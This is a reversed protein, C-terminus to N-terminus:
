FDCSVQYVYLRVQEDSVIYLKRDVPNYAVGEAKEVKEKNGNEEYELPFSVLVRDSSWSYLFLRRAKDSVIWFCDRSSDYCIGSYDIEGSKIEDDLFHNNENLIRFDIIEQLDRSIKILLGPYGEKLIFLDNNSVTIGEIGKNELGPQDCYQAIKEYGTINKLKKDKKLKGQDDIIIIKNKRESVVFLNGQEDLTIGELEKEDTRITADPDLNGDFDIKFVRKKDDSIVFLGTKDGTLVVGSPENLGYLEHKISVQKIYTLSLKSIPFNM